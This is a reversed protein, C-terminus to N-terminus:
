RDDKTDLASIDIDPEKPPEPPTEFVDAGAEAMTLESIDDIPQAKVPEPNEIIDAGTEAMTIDSIDDIPQAKIPEPNEIVDAGVEAMTVDSIDGIPQPEVEVPSPNIDAGTEAVSIGSTDAVPESDASTEPKAAQEVEELKIILGVNELAARYKEATAEDVSRKIAKRDGSFYPKIKDPTTKFMAAMNVMVEARDKGPQLIGYFVVDYIAESMGRLKTSAAARQQM